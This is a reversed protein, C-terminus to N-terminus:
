RQTPSICHHLSICLACRRSAHGQPLQETALRKYTGSTNRVMSEFFFFFFQLNSADECLTEGCLLWLVTSIHFCQDYTSSWQHGIIAFTLKLFSLTNQPPGMDCGRVIFSTITTTTPKNDNNSNNITTTTLAVAFPTFNKKSCIFNVWCKNEQYMWDAFNWNCSAM